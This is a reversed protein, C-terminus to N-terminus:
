WREHKTIQHVCIGHYLTLSVLMFIIWWSILNIPSSLWISCLTTATLFSSVIIVSSFMRRLAAKEEGLKKEYFRHLKKAIMVIVIILGVIGGFPLMALSFTCSLALWYKPFSAWSELSELLWTHMEGLGEYYKALGEGRCVFWDPITYLAEGQMGILLVTVIIGYIGLAISSSFNRVRTEQDAIRAAEEARWKIEKKEDELREDIVKELEREKRSAEREKSEAQSRLRRGEERYDYAADRDREAEERDRKIEIREEEIKKWM